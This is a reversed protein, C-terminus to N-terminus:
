SNNACILFPNTVSPSSNGEFFGSRTIMVNKSSISGEESFLNSKESKENPLLWSANFSMVLENLSVRISSRRLSNHFIKPYM